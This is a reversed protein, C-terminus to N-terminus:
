GRIIKLHKLEIVMNRTIKNDMWEGEYVDGNAFTMTGQGNKLHDKWEGEYWM